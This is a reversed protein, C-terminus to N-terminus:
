VQRVICFHLRRNISWLPWRSYKSDLAAEASKKANLFGDKDFERGARFDTPPVAAQLIARAKRDRGQAGKEEWESALSLRPKRCALHATMRHLFIVNESDTSTVEMVAAKFVCRSAGPM